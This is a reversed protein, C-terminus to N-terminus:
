QFANKELLEILGDLPLKFNGKKYKEKFKLILDDMFEKTTNNYYLNNVLDEVIIFACTIQPIRTANLNLPFGSGDPQEHHAFVISSVDPLFNHIQDIHSATNFPHSLVKHKEENSLASFTSSNKCSISALHEEKLSVDHLMSALALKQMTTEAEWGIESALNGIIFAITMSHESIYDNKKMMGSLLTFLDYNQHVTNIVSNTASVMSDIVEQDIGVIKAREHALQLVDQQVTLRENLPINTKCLTNKLIKSYDNIFLDGQANPIYLYNIGKKIYKRIVEMDYSENENLVKVFKEGGLKLYIESPVNNMRLFRHINIRRFCTENRLPSLKSNAIPSSPSPLSSPLPLSISTSIAPTEAEIIKKVIDIIVAPTNPKVIIQNLPHDEKFTKYDAVNDIENAVSLNLIFIAKNKVFSYIKESTGDVFEHGCIIIKIDKEKKLIEIASNVTNTSLIEWDVSGEMELAYLERILEEHEIHLIKM